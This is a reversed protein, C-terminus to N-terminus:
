PTSASWEAADGSEFGDVFVFVPHFTTFRFLRSVAVGGGAGPDTVYWRGLWEKGALEPVDPIAISASGFGGGAGVGQLVTSEFAFEGAGPAVLGPDQDDIVLLAPAGPLANWVGATFSPNGVLPPELAVVAPVFGGTGPLGSGEVAPVRSSETYLTPRDFPPEGAALRPDTLPRTLFALLDAKEQATLSLPVIEIEPDIFDGGRDYFEIVEPLTAFHGNHMYPARLEVNRLTPTRMQGEHLANGTVEMRGQDDSRPRVGIYHFAHDSLIANQHCDNCQGAGNFVSNGDLEQQTLGTGNFLFQDFPTQDTFLTREYTAIAMAVNPATIAAPGFAEAFLEPYSRGAIWARLAPPVRPSLALPDADAIRALVDAWARAVHAMEVDSVPPGVSQSELAGGTPLVVMMTVPDVFEGPARGDWFLEESYGANIASTTRRRTVQEVLGFHTSWDYLGDAHNLPVGPSGFVDDAGGFLGDPGPHVALPSIGSRPDAGGVAPIHCTGCAVTRTSSLQEDWFLAKGLNAKDPTVPNLAPEPPPPLQAQAAAALAVLAAALAPRRLSRAPGRRARGGLGRGATRRVNWERRENM